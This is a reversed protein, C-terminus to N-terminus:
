LLGSHIANFFLEALKSSSEYVFNVFVADGGFSQYQFFTFNPIYLCDGKALKATQIYDSVEQLLAYKDSPAFLSIDEPM